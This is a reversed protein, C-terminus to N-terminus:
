REFSEVVALYYTDMYQQAEELPIGSHWYVLAAGVVKTWPNKGRLLAHIYSNKTM